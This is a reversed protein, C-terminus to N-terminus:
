DFMEEFARRADPAPKTYLSVLWTIILAAVFGPILEYLANKL